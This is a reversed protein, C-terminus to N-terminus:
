GNTYTDGISYTRDPDEVVEDYGFKEFLEKGHERNRVLIRNQVIGGKVLIAEM